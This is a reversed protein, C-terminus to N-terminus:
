PDMMVIAMLSVLEALIKRLKLGLKFLFAVVAITLSTQAGTM